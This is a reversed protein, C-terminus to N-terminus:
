RGSRKMFKQYYQRIEENTAKIGLARFHQLVDAPVAVDGAGRAGTPRM